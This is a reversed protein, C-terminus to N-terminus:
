HYWERTSGIQSTPVKLTKSSSIVQHCLGPLVQYPDQSDQHPHAPSDGMIITFIVAIIYIACAPYYRLLTRAIKTHNLSDGIIITCPVEIIDIACAPYHRLLTRAIKTHILSDGMILIHLLSEGLSGRYQVDLDYKSSIFKVFLLVNEGLINNSSLKVERRKCIQL